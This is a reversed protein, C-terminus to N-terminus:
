NLPCRLSYTDTNAKNQRVLAEAKASPDHSCVSVVRGGELQHNKLGIMKGLYGEQATAQICAPPPALPFLSDYTDAPVAPCMM